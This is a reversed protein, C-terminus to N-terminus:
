EALIQFREADEECSAIEQNRDASLDLGNAFLVSHALFLSTSTVVSIAANIM